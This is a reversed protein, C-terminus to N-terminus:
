FPWNQGQVPATVHRALWDVDAQAGPVEREQAGVGVFTDIQGPNRWRHIEMHGDAFAFSCGLDHWKTPMDVWFDQAPSPNDPMEFAFDPNNKTDPDEETFVFLDAPGPAIIDSDKIYNRYIALGTGLAKPCGQVVAWQGQPSATTGNRSWDNAPGVTQSMDYTLVRPQGTLGFQKSPDAPCKYVEPRTVYPALLSVKPNVLQAWNTDDPNGSYDEENAVWDLVDVVSSATSCPNLPFNGNNDANYIKWGILIQRLNNMCQIGQAKKQAASLVPLLIAALIAIIAIVVLLEILTFAHRNVREHHEREDDMASRVDCDKTIKMKEM